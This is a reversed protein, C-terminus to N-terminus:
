RALTQALKYYREEIEPKGELVESLPSIKIKGGVYGVMVGSKGAQLVDVAAAGLRTALLRDKASPAGGRQIYGLVSLRAGFGTEEKHEEIYDAITAADPDAGQAITIICYRKGRVYADGVRRTIEAIDFPIEPICVMEAGSAIGVMLAMYGTGGVTEVLFVQERSYATDRLHDIAELATNLATDVGLAMTTGLIDNEVDAPIGVTPFGAEVLTHAGELSENDGIVILGGIGIEHLSRLAERLESQEAFAEGESAGLFTGGKDIIHSVSRSSLEVFEGNLLGAYGERVGWVGLDHHIAMRVVARICANLAPNGAGGTLVAIRRLRDTM